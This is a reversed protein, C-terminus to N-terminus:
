CREMHGLGDVLLWPIQCFASVPIETDISSGRMVLVRQLLNGLVILMVQGGRPQVVIRSVRGRCLHNYMFNPVVWIGLQM